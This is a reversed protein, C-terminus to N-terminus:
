HAQAWNDGVGAEVTLPVSLPVINEMIDKIRPVYTDIDGEPIEFILEDHVQLLMKVPWNEDRIVADIKVMAKKIIDAATGQLPANIAQREAFGRVSFNKDNIGSITCKRGLLTEVYGHKKAFAKQSDMFTQLEPLQALYNKIIENATGPDTGLQKALGWGSIGYIIGFNIAKAQRRLESSVEDLPTNFVKSATSAHIDQNNQFAKKLAEIGAMEAVLRLEIQSYDIAVIKNGSEAIFATRIKRGDETRIPSNQLNPDSSSLRGTNTVAMSFSTHIRGTRPNIQDQLADTYTSKLKALGRWELIDEVIKHGQAALPELVNQATSYAGTKSKKGGPLGMEGFLVEGMQKPSAINFEHGAQKHIATELDGLKQEFDASMQKLILPDVKIGEWEMRAIVPILPREIREYLTTLKEQPLRPYFLDYLRRTMDADEAAYATADNIDIQDFTKQNKGTGALEKFSMPTHGLFTQSLEDMGHGHATGDVVYSLLMTDTVPHVNIGHHYFMQLDYKTNHAIKLVAESELMPKLIALAKDMPIQKRAPREPDKEDHTPAAFLDTDGTEQTIHGLPIYCAKGPTVCLSVGVLKAMAPTLSTTETDFAVIGADMAADVWHQLDEATEVCAYSERLEDADQHTQILTERKEQHTLLQSEIRALTTRFGQEKLFGVLKDPDPKVEFDDIAVPVPAHDELRVLQKSILAQEKFEILNERRKNQKIEHARELLTELDGYEEILQAATKVGIGPVGPVNDVSDGSLAQIDVVNKPPLGFKEIVEDHGIMKNKMADFMTVDDNILQMLDKDSSVIIAKRGAERALRAYTAILDDAEYGELEICPLNFARVADRILPFQPVLDEPTESRNAKYDPYIDNRYNARAADFIVAVCHANQDTLLKTLMNAFGLVANVPVGQPNTLPPLAHYARFIFSSGDVLYLPEKDLIKKEAAANM